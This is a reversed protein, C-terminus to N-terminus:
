LHANNGKQEVEEKIPEFSVLEFLGYLPRFDLLGNYKGADIIFQKMSSPPIIPDVIEITFELSWNDFRPRARVIRSRSIVVTKLDIEWGNDSILPINDPDIRVGAFIYNKFTRKGKGPIQYNKAAEKLCSLICFSPVIIGGDGDKYLAKEAETKPDYEKSRTTTKNNEELMSNCSHMLLPRTGKIQIKYKEIM